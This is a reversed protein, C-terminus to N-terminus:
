KKFITKKELKFEVPVTYKVKIPKGRQIAPRDFNILKAVRLAENNLDKRIGEIIEHNGTVGITDIWFSIFARVSLFTRSVANM